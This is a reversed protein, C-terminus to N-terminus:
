RNSDLDSRPKVKRKSDLDSRSKGMEPRNGVPIDIGQAHDFDALANYLDYLAGLERERANRVERQANRIELLTGRGSEYAKEAVQLTHELGQQQARAADIQARSDQMQQLAQRVELAIGQRTHELEAEIRQTQLRAERTDQRAKGGDLLSWRLELTAAAYHEHVLATPTQETLQGRAVLAPQTQVRALSVGAQAVRLNQELLSLEPRSRLAVGVAADATNPIEPLSTIPELVFPTDLDRGLIYNFNSRAQKLGGEAKGLGAQAEVVQARVTDADVPKAIGAAIQRQVLAEYRTAAVLGDQATRVGSEAELVLLYAKRVSLALDSLAKNYSQDAAVAEAAYRKRAAGLGARYLPQELILDVRGAEEPLFTTPTGDPRPFLVRPGQVAGSATANLTPRAVPRDRDASVYATDRETRAIQAQPSQLALAVSAAISLPKEPTQARAAAALLLSVGIM